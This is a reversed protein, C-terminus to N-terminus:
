DGSPTPAVHWALGADVRPVRDPRAKMRMSARVYGAWTEGPAYGVLVSPLAAGERWECRALLFPGGAAGRTGWGAAVYPVARLPHGRKDVIEVGLGGRWPAPTWTFDTIVDRTSGRMRLEVVAQPIEPVALASEHMLAGLSLGLPSVDRLSTKGEDHARVGHASLGVWANNEESRFVNGKLDFDLGSNGGSAHLLGRIYPRLIFPPRDPAAGGAWPALADARAAYQTEFGACPSFFLITEIVVL